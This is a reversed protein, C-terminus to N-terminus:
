NTVHGDAVDLASDLIALGEAVEADTVNCPPCVHIRNYNAFPLMGGWKCAGIVANM